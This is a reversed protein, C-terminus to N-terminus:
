IIELFYLIVLKDKEFKSFIYERKLDDPLRFKKVHLYPRGELRAISWRKHTFDVDKIFDNSSKFLVYNVNEKDKYIAFDSDTYFKALSINNDLEKEKHKGLYAESFYVEVDALADISKSVGYGVAGGAATLLMGPLMVAYLPANVIHKASKDTTTDTQKIACASLLLIITIVMIISKLNVM